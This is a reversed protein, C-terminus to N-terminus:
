IVDHVRNHIGPVYVLAKYGPVYVLAKYGSYVVTINWEASSKALGLGGGQEKSGDITKIATRRAFRLSKSIEGPLFM